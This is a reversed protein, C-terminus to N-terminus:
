SARGPGGVVGVGRRRLQQLRREAQRQLLFLQLRVLAQLLPTHEGGGATLLPQLPTHMPRGHPHAPRAPRRRLLKLSTEEKSTAVRRRSVTSGSGQGGQEVAMPMTSTSRKRLAPWVKLTSSSPVPM